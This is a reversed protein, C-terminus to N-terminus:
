ALGLQGGRIQDWGAQDRREAWGGDEPEDVISENKHTKDLVGEVREQQKETELYSYHIILM